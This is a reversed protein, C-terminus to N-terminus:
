WPHYGHRRSLPEPWEPNELVKMAANNFSIPALGPPCSICKQTGSYALDIGMRDLAVERGGLSTVTDVLFLAGTERAIGSLDELPQCVGTSTEAHVM